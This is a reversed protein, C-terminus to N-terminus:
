LISFNNLVGVENEDTYDGGNETDVSIFRHLPTVQGSM